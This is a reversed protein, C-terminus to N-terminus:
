ARDWRECLDKILKVIDGDDRRLTKILKIINARLLVGLVSSISVISAFAIIIIVQPNDIILKLIRDVKELIKEISNPIKEFNEVTIKFGKNM